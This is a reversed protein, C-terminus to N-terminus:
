QAQPGGASGVKEIELFEAVSIKYPSDGFGQRRFVNGADKVGVIGGNDALLQAEELFIEQRGAGDFIKDPTEPVLMRIPIEEGFLGRNLQVVGMGGHRDGLQHANEEIFGVETPILRPGDGLTSQSIGIM